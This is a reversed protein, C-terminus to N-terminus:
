AVAVFTGVGDELNALLTESFGASALMGLYESIALGTDGIVAIDADPTEVISARYAAGGAAEIM